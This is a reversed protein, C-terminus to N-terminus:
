RYDPNFCDNFVPVQMDMSNHSLEGDPLLISDINWHKEDHKFENLVYSEMKFQIDFCTTQIAFRWPSGGLHAGFHYRSGPEISSVNSVASIHRISSTKDYATGFGHRM